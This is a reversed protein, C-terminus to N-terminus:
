GWFICILVPAEDVAGGRSTRQRQGELDGQASGQPGFTSFKKVVKKKLKPSKQGWWGFHDTGGGM